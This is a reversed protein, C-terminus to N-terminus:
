FPMEDETYPRGRDAMGRRIRLANLANDIDIDMARSLDFENFDLSSDLGGDTMDIMFDDRDPRSQEQMFREYQADTMDAPNVSLDLEMQKPTLIRSLDQKAGIMRAVQNNPSLLQVPQLTGDRGIQAYMQGSMRDPAGFGQRMYTLARRTDGDVLGIPAAKLIDGPQMGTQGILKYLAEMMPKTYGGAAQIQKKAAPETIPDYRFVPVGGPDIMSFSVDIVKRTDALADQLGTPGMQGIERRDLERIDRPGLNFFGEDGLVLQMKVPGRSTEVVPGLTTEAISGTASANIRDLADALNAATKETVPFQPLEALKRQLAFRQSAM